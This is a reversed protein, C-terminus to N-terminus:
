SLSCPRARTFLIILRQTGYFASLKKVLQTVTLKELLARSCPTLLRVTTPEQSCSLSGEPEMFPPFKVLQSVTLKELLSRSCPTLSFTSRAEVPRTYEPTNKTTPAVGMCDFHWVFCLFPASLQLFFYTPSSHLEFLLCPSPLQSHCHDTRELSSSFFSKFLCFILGAL